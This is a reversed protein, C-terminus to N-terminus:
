AKFPPISPITKTPPNGQAKKITDIGIDVGFSNKAVSKIENHSLKKSYGKFHLDKIYNVLMTKSGKKQDKWMFTESDCFGVMIFWEKAKNIEITGKCAEGLTEVKRDNVKISVLITNLDELLLDEKETISLLHNLKIRNTSIFGEETKENECVIQLDRIIRKEDALKIRVEHIFKKTTKIANTENILTELISRVEEYRYLLWVDFQSPIIGHFFSGPEIRINMEKIRNM